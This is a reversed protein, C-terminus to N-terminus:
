TTRSGPARTGASSSGAPKRLDVTPIGGPFGLYNHNTQHHTSRGHGTDFVLVERNYRALYLAASLGAPGGGVVVADAAQM